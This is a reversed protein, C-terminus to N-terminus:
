CAQSNMPFIAVWTFSARGEWLFEQQGKEPQKAAMFILKEKMAFVKYKYSIPRQSPKDAEHLHMSM